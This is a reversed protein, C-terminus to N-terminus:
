AARMKLSGDKARARDFHATIIGENLYLLAVLSHMNSGNKYSAGESSSGIRGRACSVSILIRSLHQLWM